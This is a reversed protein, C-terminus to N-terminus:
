LTIPWYGSLSQTFALNIPRQGLPRGKIPLGTLVGDALAQRDRHLLSCHPQSRFHSQRQCRRDAPDPKDMQRAYGGANIAAKNYEM